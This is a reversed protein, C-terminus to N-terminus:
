IGILLMKTQTEMNVAVVLLVFNNNHLLAFLPRVPFLAYTRTEVIQDRLIIDMM